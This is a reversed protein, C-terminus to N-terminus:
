LRPIRGGLGKGQVNKKKEEDLKKVIRTEEHRERNAANHTVSIRKNAKALNALNYEAFVQCPNYSAAGECTERLESFILEFSGYKDGASMRSLATPEEGVEMVLDHMQTVMEADLVTPRPDIGELYIKMEESVQFDLAFLHYSGRRRVLGRRSAHFLFLGIQKMSTQLFTDTFHTGTVKGNALTRQFDEMSIPKRDQIVYGRRFFVLYPLTSGLLLFSRVTFRHKDNLLLPKALPKSILLNSTSDFCKLRSVVGEGVVSEKGVLFTARLNKQALTRAAECEVRDGERFQPVLVHLANVECGMTRTYTALLPFFVTSSTLVAEHGFVVDLYTSGERAFYLRIFEAQPLATLRPEDAFVFTADITRSQHWQRDLADEVLAGRCSPSGLCAFSRTTTTESKKAKSRFLDFMGIPIETKSCPRPPRKVVLSGIQPSWGSQELHLKLKPMNATSKSSAEDDVDDNQTNPDLFFRQLLLGLAVLGLVLSVLKTTLPQLPTLPLLKSPLSKEKEAPAVLPLHEADEVPTPPPVAITSEVTAAVARRRASEKCFMVFM